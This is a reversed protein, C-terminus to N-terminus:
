FNDIDIDIFSGEELFEDVTITEIEIEKDPLNIESISENKKKKSKKTNKTNESELSINKIDKSDLITETKKM